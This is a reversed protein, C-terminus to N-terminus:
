KGTFSGMDISSIQNNQLHLEDLKVLGVFYFRKILQLKNNNLKLVLLSDNLGRFAGQAVNVLRNFDLSLSMLKRNNQFCSAEVSTILNFSVTLNTLAPLDLLFSRRREIAELYNNRLDLVRLRILGQFANKEVRDLQNTALNMYVLDVMGHNFTFSEINDILNGDLSLRVLNPVGRFAVKGISEIKQSSLDIEEILTLNSFSEDAISTLLNMAISLKRLNKLWDFSEMNIIEFSNENLNLLRLSRLKSLLGQELIKLNNQTLYLSELATLDNFAQSEIFEIRNSALSLDKLRTLRSFYFRGIVSLKNLSLNLSLMMSSFSSNKIDSINNNELNLNELRSLFITEQLNSTTLILSTLNNLFVLNRWTNPDDLQTYSVDLTRLNINLGEFIHGSDLNKILNESLYLRILNVLNRFIRPLIAEILNGRLRLENLSKFNSPFSRNLREIKNRDLDIIDLKDLEKGKLRGLSDLMNNLSRDKLNNESLDLIDLRDILDFAKESISKMDNRSLDLRDIKLSAFRFDPLLEYAKNKIVIDLRRRPYHTEIFRRFETFSPVNTNSADVDTCTLKYTVDGSPGCDCEEDYNCKEAQIDDFRILCLL